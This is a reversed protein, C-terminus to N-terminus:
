KSVVDRLVVVEDSSVLGLHRRAQEDLMDKDVSKPRLMQIRHELRAKEQVSQEYTTRTTELEKQMRLLALYGRDGQIVHYLFYGLLILAFLPGLSRKLRSRLERATM